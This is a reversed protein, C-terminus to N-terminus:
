NDFRVKECPEMYFDEPWDLESFELELEKQIM